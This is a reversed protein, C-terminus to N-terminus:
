ETYGGNLIEAVMRRRQTPIDGADYAMPDVGLTIMKATTSTFVGCDSGNTQVPGGIGVMTWEDEVFDGKLNFQVWAKANKIVKDYSGHFSDFYEITKFKPSVVLLTWHMGGVNVPIFIREVDKMQKGGVKARKTWRDCKEAGEKDLKPYFYTSMSVMKPIENRRHGSAELAHNVATDIYAQIITDNLWGRPDEGPVNSQPLVKGIDRRFIDTGARSSAVKRGMSEGMAKDVRTEWERSLPQIVSEVPMRRAGNKRREEEKRAREEAEEKEKRAREAALRAEEAARREAEKRLKTAHRTSSRRGSVTLEDLQRTISNPTPPTAPADVQNAPFRGNKAPTSDKGNM